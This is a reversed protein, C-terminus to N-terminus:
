ESEFYEFWKVLCGDVTTGEEYYLGAPCDLPESFLIQRSQDPRTNLHLIKQASTDQGNYLTCDAATGTGDSTLVVGVLSCPKNTLLQSETCWKYKLQGNKAENM